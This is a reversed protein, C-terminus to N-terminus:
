SLGKEGEKEKSFRDLYSNIINDAVDIEANPIDIYRLRKEENDMEIENEDIAIEKWADRTNQLRIRVLIPDESISVKEGNRGTLDLLYNFDSIIDGSAKFNKIKDLRSRLSEVVEMNKVEQTNQPQEPLEEFNM